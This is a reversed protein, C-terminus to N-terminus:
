SLRYVSSINLLSGEAGARIEGGVGRRVAGAAANRATAGKSHLRHAGDLDGRDATLVIITNSALGLAELEDLLPVFNRDADRLCNLYHNNRVRWGL